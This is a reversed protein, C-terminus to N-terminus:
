FFIGKLFFFFPGKRDGNFSVGPGFMFDWVSSGRRQAAETFKCIQSGVRRRTEYESIRM